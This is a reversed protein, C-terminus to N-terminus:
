KEIELALLQVLELLDQRRQEKHEFEKGIKKAEKDEIEAKIKKLKTKRIEKVVGKKHAEPYSSWNKAGHESLDNRSFMLVPWFHFFNFIIQITEKKQVTDQAARRQAFRKRTEELSEESTLEISVGEDPIHFNPEQELAYKAGHSFYLMLFETLLPPHINPFLGRIVEVLCEDLDQANTKKFIRPKSWELFGRVIVHAVRKERNATKIKWEEPFYDKWIRYHSRGDDIENFFTSCFNSLLVYIYGWYEERKKEDTIKELKQECEQIHKKFVDFFKYLGQGDKDQHLIKIIATFFDRHFYDWNLIHESESHL